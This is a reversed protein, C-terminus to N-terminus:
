IIFFYAAYEGHLSVFFKHVRSADLLGRMEHDHDAPLDPRVCLECEAFLSVWVVAEAFLFVRSKNAHAATITVM